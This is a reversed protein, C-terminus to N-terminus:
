FVQFANSYMHRTSLEQFKKTHSHLELVLHTFAKFNNYSDSAYIHEGSLIAKMNENSLAKYSIVHINRKTLNM